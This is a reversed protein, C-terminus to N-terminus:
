LFFRSLEKRTRTFQGATAFAPSSGGCVAKRFLQVGPNQHLPYQPGGHLPRDASRNDRANGNEREPADRKRDASGHRVIRAGAHSEKSRRLSSLDVSRMLNSQAIQ